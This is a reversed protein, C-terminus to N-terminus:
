DKKNYNNKESLIKSKQEPRAKLWLEGVKAKWIPPIVPTCWRGLM